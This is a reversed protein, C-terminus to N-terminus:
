STQSKSLTTFKNHAAQLEAYLRDLGHIYNTDLQNNSPYVHSFDIMVIQVNPPMSPDNEYVFLLSSAYFQFSKQTAFWKRVGNVKTLVESTLRPDVGRGSLFELLGDLVNKEDHAKGWEKDKVVVEGSTRHMRYGLLRFGLIKQPPYKTLEKERKVENALPDYTIKGMKVDLIAPRSYVNTVDELIMFDHDEKDIMVSTLGYFVPTLEALGKVDQVNVEAWGDLKTDGGGSDSAQGSTSQRLARELMKYVNVECEGRFGEQKPKLIKDSGHKKLIGIERKGNKIVSPHHGAIQDAFWEYSPPLEQEPIDM